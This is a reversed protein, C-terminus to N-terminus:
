FGERVGARVSGFLSGSIAGFVYGVALFFFFAGWICSLVTKTTIVDEM